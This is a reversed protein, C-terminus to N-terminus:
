VLLPLCQVQRQDLLKIALRWATLRSLPAAMSVSSRTPSPLAATAPRSANAAAETPTNARPRGASRCPSQIRTSKFSTVGGSQVTGTAQTAPGGACPVCPGPVRARSGSTPLTGGAGTGSGLMTKSSAGSSLSATGALGDGTWLMVGGEASRGHCTHTNRNQPAPENSVNPTAAPRIRCNWRTRLSASGAGSDSLLCASTSAPRSPSACTGAIPRTGPTTEGSTQAAGLTDLGAEDDVCARPGARRAAARCAAPARAPAGSAARGSSGSGPAAPSLGRSTAGRQRSRGAHTARPRPATSRRRPRRPGGRRRGSTHRPPENSVSSKREPAPGATM